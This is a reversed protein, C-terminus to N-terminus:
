SPAIEMDLHLELSRRIDDRLATKGYEIDGIMTPSVGVM